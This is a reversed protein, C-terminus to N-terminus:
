RIRFRVHIEISLPVGFAAGGSKSCGLVVMLRMTELLNVLSSRARGLRMGRNFAYLLHYAGRLRLRHMLRLELDFTIAVPLRSSYHFISVSDIGFRNETLEREIEVNTFPSFSSFAWTGERIYGSVLPPKTIKRNPEN